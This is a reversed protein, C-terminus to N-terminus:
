VRRANKIRRLRQAKRVPSTPNSADRIYSVLKRRMSVLVRVSPRILSRRRSRVDIAARIQGPGRRGKSAAM